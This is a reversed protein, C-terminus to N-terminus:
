RSTNPGAFRGWRHDRCASARRGGLARREDRACGGMAMTALSTARQGHGAGRPRRGVTCGPSGPRKTKEVRALLRRTAPGYPPDSLRDLGLRLRRNHRGDSVARNGTKWGPPTLLLLLRDAATRGCFWFVARAQRPVSPDAAGAHRCMPVDGATAVGSTRRWRTGLMGPPSPGSSPAIQGAALARTLPAVDIGQPGGAPRPRRGPSPDRAYDAFWLPAFTWRAMTWANLRDRAM